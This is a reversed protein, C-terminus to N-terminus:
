GARLTFVNIKNSNPTPHIVGLRQVSSPAKDGQNHANQTDQRVRSSGLANKAFEAHDVGFAAVTKIGRLNV